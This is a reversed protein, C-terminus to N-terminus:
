LPMPDDEYRQKLAALVERLGPVTEEAARRWAIGARLAMGPEDLPVVRFAPAAFVRTAPLDDDGLVTLTLAGTRLVHAATQVVDNHPLDVLHTVGANLLAARSEGVVSPHVKASTMLVQRDRLDRLTLSTRTALEDTAPMVMGLSGSAIVLSETGSTSSTGAPLHVVALDIRDATLQDLLESSSALTVPLEVGPATERYVTLVTDMVKPPTLPAAGLRCRLVDPHGQALDRLSDFDRVVAKARERFVEGFSTLEVHHHERVFLDRDLEHELERIRRSLPSATVHLREAARGFHLEDAVALFYRLQQIDM